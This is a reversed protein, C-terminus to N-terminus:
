NKIILLMAEGTNFLKNILSLIRFYLRKLIPYKKRADDSYSIDLLMFGRQKLLNILYKNSFHWIHENPMLPEWYKQRLFFIINQINPLGVILFGGKKLVKNVLFLEDIPNDIHELVHNYIVFDFKNKNKIIFKKLIGNFIRKNLKKNATKYAKKNPEIGYVEYGEKSLLEILIGSSCGVDLVKGKRRFKKIKEVIPKFLEIFLDKDKEYFDARSQKPNFSSDKPPFTKLIGCKLCKGIIMGEYNKFVTENNFQIVPKFGSIKFNQCICASFFMFCNYDIEDPGPPSSERKRWPKLPRTM